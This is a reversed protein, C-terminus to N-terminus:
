FRPPTPSIRSEKPFYATNGKINSNYWTASNANDEWQKLIDHPMEYEYPGPYPNPARMIVRYIGNDEDILNARVEARGKNIMFTGKWSGRSATMTFSINKQYEM